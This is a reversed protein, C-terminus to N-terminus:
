IFTNCNFKIINNISNLRYKIYTITRIKKHKIKNKVKKIISYMIQVKAKILEQM